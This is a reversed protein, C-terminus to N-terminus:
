ELELPDSERRAELSVAYVHHVSVYEPLVTMCVFYFYTLRTKKKKIYTKFVSTAEAPKLSTVYNHIVKVKQDKQRQRLVEPTTPM